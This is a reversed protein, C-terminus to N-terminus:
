GRAQLMRDRRRMCVLVLLGFGLIGPASGPTATKAVGCGEDKVKSSSAAGVADVAGGVASDPAPLGDAPGADQSAAGDAAVDKGVGDGGAADSSAADGGAADNAGSDVGGSDVGGSDSAGSDVGSAADSGGADASSGADKGGGAQATAQKVAEALKDTGAASGIKSACAKAVLDVAGDCDNDLGDLCSLGAAADEKAGPNVGSNVDDCDGCKATKKCGVVGCDAWGDKDADPCDVAAAACSPDKADILGDCDDDVGNSCLEKMGPSVSKKTDDCDAPAAFGDKDGDVAPVEVVTPKADSLNLSLLAVQGPVVTGHHWHSM